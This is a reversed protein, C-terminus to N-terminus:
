APITDLPAFMACSFRHNYFIQDPNRYRRVVIPNNASGSDIQVKVGMFIGDLYVAWVRRLVDQTGAIPEGVRAWIGRIMAGGCECTEFAM